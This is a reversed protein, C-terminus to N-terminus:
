GKRMLIRKFRLTGAKMGPSIFYLSIILSFAYVIVIALGEGILWVYNSKLRELFPDFLYLIIIALFVGIALHTFYTLFYVGIFKNMKKLALYIPKWIIVILVQSVIVGFIIGNLGFYYGIWVSLGINLVTESIPAWIDGYLGYANLFTDVTFRSIMIYLSITLLFLTSMPLVYEQGIWLVVFPTGLLYFAFALVAAIVFRISFLEFFVYRIKPEDGEAVLNGVGADMGNFMAFVIKQIGAIILMYNGYLAVLTLDILAYIILPSSQTLAFGAIKHFFLQKIKTVMITHKSKLVSYKTQVKKLAPFDKITTYHLAWSAIAAFVAELVLWWVYGNPLWYVAAMQCIIKILNVSTYSYQVKYNKQNSTLIIQKYNVFYGLLSSFLLVGFSAYAYWLPLEMKKFIWPFFGMLVCAGAMIFIGIRKYLMGQLNVIENVTDIDEDRLPKYLSFGVASGIGLEALNLFQLLNQATTNLGLIETGLYDLFIKRSFFSLLLGVAYYLMAVISNHLSKHTRSVSSM